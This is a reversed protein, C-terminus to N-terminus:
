KCMDILIAIPTGLTLTGLLGWYTIALGTGVVDLVKDYNIGTIKINKKENQKKM